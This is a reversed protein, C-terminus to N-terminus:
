QISNKIILLTFKYIEKIIHFLSPICILWGGTILLINLYNM